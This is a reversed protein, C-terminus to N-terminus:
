NVDTNGIQGTESGFCTTFRGFDPVEPVLRTSLSNMGKVTNVTGYPLYFHTLM